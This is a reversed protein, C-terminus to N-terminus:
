PAARAIVSRTEGDTTTVRYAKDTALLREELSNRAVTGSRHEFWVGNTNIPPPAVFLVDTSSFRVVTGAGYREAMMLMYARLDAARHADPFAPDCWVQIVSLQYTKGAETDQIAITDAEADIVYHARDPRPLGATKPDALWRCSWTRCATPRRVYIRCGRGVKSHVCRQGAAKSITPVPVLKCCLQCSGCLRGTGKDDFSFTISGEGDDSITMRDGALEFTGSM